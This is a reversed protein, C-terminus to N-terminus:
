AETMGSLWDRHEQIVHDIASMIDEAEEAKMLAQEIYDREESGMYQRMDEISQMYLNLSEMMFDRVPELGPPPADAFSERIDDVDHSVMDLAKKLAEKDFEPESLLHEGLSRIYTKLDMDLEVNEDQARKMEDTMGYAANDM